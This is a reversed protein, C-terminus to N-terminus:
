FIPRARQLLLGAGVLVRMELKCFWTLLVLNYLKGAYNVKFIMLVRPTRTDLQWLVKVGSIRNFLREKPIVLSTVVMGDYM